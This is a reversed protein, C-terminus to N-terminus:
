FLMCHKTKNIRECLLESNDVENLIGTSWYTKDQQNRWRSVDQGQLMVIDCHGHGHQSDGQSVQHPDGERAAGAQGQPVPPAQSAGAQRSAASAAM